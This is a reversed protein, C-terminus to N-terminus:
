APPQSSPRSSPRLTEPFTRASSNDCLFALGKSTRNDAVRRGIRRLPLEVCRFNAESAIVLLTVASMVVLIYPAREMMGTQWWVEQNLRFIPLHIIYLGYSRAGFWLLLSTPLKPLVSGVELAAVFVLAGASLAVASFAPVGAQRALSFAALLLMSLAITVILRWRRQVGSYATRLGEFTPTGSFLYILVGIMMADTRLYIWLSPDKRDVMAQAAILAILVAVRVQGRVVLLFAPFLIYFQEELSLSWFPGLARIEAGIDILHYVYINYAYILIAAGQRLVSGADGFAGSQNAVLTFMVTLSVWLYATPLLRFARRIWFSQVVLWVNSRGRLRAGDIASVISKSVVFGSICFFLDVGAWFSFLTELRRLWAWNGWPATVAIHSMLVFVVAAGRLVEIEANKGAPDGYRGQGDAGMM